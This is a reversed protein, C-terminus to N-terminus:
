SDDPLIPAVVSIKLPFLASPVCTASCADPLKISLNLPKPMLASVAFDKAALIIGPRIALNVWFVFSGFSLEKLRLSTKPLKPPSSPLNSTLSTIPM